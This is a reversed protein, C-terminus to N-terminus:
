QEFCYLPQNWDCPFPCTGFSTWQSISYGGLGVYGTGSISTWNSCTSPGVFTGDGSTATWPMFFYGGSWSCGGLVGGGVYPKQQGFEDIELANMPGPANSSNIVLSYWNNAFIVGDIRLLNGDPHVLRDKADENSDSLWAKWNGGLGAIEARQQCNADAGSLGGM